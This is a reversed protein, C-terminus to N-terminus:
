AFEIVSVFAVESGLDDSSLPASVLRGAEEILSPGILRAAVRPPIGDFIAPLWPNATWEFEFEIAKLYCFESFKVRYELLPIPGGCWM